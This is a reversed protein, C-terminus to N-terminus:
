NNQNDQRPIAQKGMQLSALYNATNTINTRELDLSKIKETAEGLKTADKRSAHTIIVIAVLYAIAVLWGSAILFYYGWYGDSAKISIVGIITSIFSLLGYVHMWVTNIM